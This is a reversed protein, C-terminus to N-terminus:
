ESMMKRIDRVADADTRQAKNVVCYGILGGVIGGLIIGILMGEFNSGYIDAAGLEMIYWSCWLAVVPIGVAIQIRRLKQRKVLADMLDLLPMNTYDNDSLRNIYVDFVVSVTTMVVTAWYFLWSINLRWVLFLFVLYIFPLLGFIQFKNFRRIWQAKYSIVQRMLKHNVLDKSDVIRKLERMQEKMIDLEANANYDEM